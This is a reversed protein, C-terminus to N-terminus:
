LLHPLASPIIQANKESREQPVAAPISLAPSAAPSVSNALAMVACIVCYDAALGIPKAPASSVDSGPLAAGTGVASGSASVSGHPFEARHVHGFSLAFQITLALLACWSGPRINSRVWRM